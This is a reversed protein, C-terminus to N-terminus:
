SRIRFEFPLRVSIRVARGNVRGPRFLTRKASERAAAAFEPNTAFVVSLSASDVRGTTDIIAELLVSGEVGAQRLLEPYRPMPQTLAQPIREDVFLSWPNGQGADPRPGPGGVIPASLGAGIQPVEPQPFEPVHVTGPVGPIPFVIGREPKGSEPKPPFVIAISDVRPHATPLQSAPGLLIAAGLAAHTGISIASSAARM